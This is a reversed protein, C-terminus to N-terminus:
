TAELISGGQVGDLMAQLQAALDVPALGARRVQNEDVLLRAKPRGKELTARAHTVQDTMLVIRRVRDGITALTDMNPGYIRVEVPANFPPGQELKRVLVQAGPFRDDLEDQLSPIAANAARFDRMTVMAQAFNPRSDYRQMMNYYFSPGSGGLFWHVSEVGDAARIGPDIRAVMERTAAIGAASDLHVEVNFMDRDSPPFFQETMQGAAVVGALPVTHGAKGRLMWDSLGM